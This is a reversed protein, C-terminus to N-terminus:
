NFYVFDFWTLLCKHRCNITIEYIYINTNIHSIKCMVIPMDDAGSCGIDAHIMWGVVRM